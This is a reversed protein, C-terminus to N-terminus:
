SDRQSKRMRKKQCFIYALNRTELNIRKGGVLVTGDEMDILIKMKKMVDKSMLLPIDSQVIVLDITWSKGAVKIPITYKGKSRLVSNNGFKFVKNPGKVEGKTKEM